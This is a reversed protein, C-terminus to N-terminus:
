LPKNKQSDGPYIRYNDKNTHTTSVEIIESEELAFIQHPQGPTIHLVDGQLLEKYFYEGNSLDPYKLRLKGSLVYFTEEKILHYHMSFTADKNFHLIKGCYKSNNMIVLEYGWGKTIIQPKLFLFQPTKSEINLDFNEYTQEYMLKKTKFLNDMEWFINQIEQLRKMVIPNYCDNKDILEVWNYGIGGNDIWNNITESKDDILLNGKNAFHCKPVKTIIIKKSPMNLVDRCWDYKAKYCNGHAMPKTLIYTDFRNFCTQLLTETWSYTELTYWWDYNKGLEDIDSKPISYKDTLYTNSVTTENHPYDVNFYACASKLWNALVGDLDIYIKPDTNKNM